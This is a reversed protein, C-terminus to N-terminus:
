VNFELRSLFDSIIRETIGWIVGHASPYAPWAHKAEGILMSFSSSRGDHKLDRLKVWFAHAVETNLVLDIREPAVAIFPSVTLPPLRPSVPSLPALQGIISTERNLILNVEERTERVATDILDVDGKDARGGPLALHGSWPDKLSIARKILLLEATGQNNRLVLAVAALRYSEVDSVTLRPMVELPAYHNAIEDITQFYDDM